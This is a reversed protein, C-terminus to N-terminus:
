QPLQWSPYWFLYPGSSERMVLGRQGSSKSAPLAACPEAPKSSEIQPEDIQSKAEPKNAPQLCQWVSEDELPGDAAQIGGINVLHANFSTLDIFIWRGIIIFAFPGHVRDIRYITSLSVGLRHAAEKATLRNPQAGQIEKSTLICELHTLDTDTKM